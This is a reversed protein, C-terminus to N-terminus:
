NKTYYFNYNSDIVVQFNNEEGLIQLDQRKLNISVQNESPEFFVNISDNQLSKREPDKVLSQHVFGRRGDLTEIQYWDEVAGLLLAPTKRSLPEIIEFKTSPGKRFNASAGSIEMFFEDTELNSKEPNPHRTEVMPLPDFAGGSYIGFHLHPATYRANGTNGVFGLTDGLKVQSGFSVAQSDLHAFYLNHGRKGDRVWVSKGGLGGNRVSSVVGKVPSVVPTGRAAFIDVGEHRRAGGDRTAGWFSQIAARDKGYVPFVAYTRATKVTLDFAGEGLIEPQLRILFTGSKKIEFELTDSGAFSELPDDFNNDKFIDLFVKASAVAQWDLFVQVTAGRQAEFAWSLARVPNARFVGKVAFPIEMSVPQNFAKQSAALWKEGAVSKDLEAQSLQDRYKEWPSKKDFIQLPNSGCGALFFLIFLPALKKM